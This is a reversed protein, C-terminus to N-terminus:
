VSFLICNLFLIYLHFIYVLAAGDDKGERRKVLGLPSDTCM